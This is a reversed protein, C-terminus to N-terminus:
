HHLALTATPDQSQEKGKDNQFVNGNGHQFWIDLFYHGRDEKYWEMTCPLPLILTHGQSM